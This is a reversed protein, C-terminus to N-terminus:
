VSKGDRGPRFLRSHPGSAPIFRVHGPVRVLQSGQAVLVALPVAAVEEIRVELLDGVLDEALGAGALRGIGADRGQEVRGVALEIRELGVEAVKLHGENAHRHVEAHGVPRAGAEARFLTTYPFLTDTRTSRPPRRIM